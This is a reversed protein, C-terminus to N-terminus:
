GVLKFIATAWEPIPRHAAVLFLVYICLLPLGIPLVVQRILFRWAAALRCLMRAGAAVDALISRIFATDEAVQKTVTTNESIAQDHAALREVVLARFEADPLTMMDDPEM